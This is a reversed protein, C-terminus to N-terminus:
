AGFDMDYMIKHIENSLEQPLGLISIDMFGRIIASIAESESLGRTMLYQIQEDAIKGVAAEHSLEAGEVNVALEPIAFM